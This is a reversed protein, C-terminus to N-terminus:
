SLAMPACAFTVDAGVASIGADNGRRWLLPRLEKGCGDCVINVPM